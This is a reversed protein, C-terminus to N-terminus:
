HGDRQERWTFAWYKCFACVCVPACTSCVARAGRRTLGEALRGALSRAFVALAESVNPTRHRAREFVFYIVLIHGHTHSHTRTHTDQKQCINYTSYFFLHATIFTTGPVPEWQQIGGRSGNGWSGAERM